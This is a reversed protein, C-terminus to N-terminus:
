FEYIGNENFGMDVILAGKSVVAAHGDAATVNGRRLHRTHVRGNNTSGTLNYTPYFFYHTQSLNSPTAFNVSDALIPFNSPTVKRTASHWPGTFPKTGLSKMNVSGGDSYSGIMAGYTTYCNVDGGSRLSLQGYPAVAPCSAGRNDKFYRGAMLEGLWQKKLADSRNNNNPTLGDNDDAYNAFAIGLQKLNNVCSISRAKERASNLAPLLIAALIAIIAITVLLEILTFNIKRFHSLYFIFSFHGKEPSKKWTDLDIKKLGQRKRM